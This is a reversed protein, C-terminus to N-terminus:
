GSKRYIPLFIGGREAVSSPLTNKFEKVKYLPFRGLDPPLCSAKKNDPVRVTRQFSIEVKSSQDQNALVVANGQVSLNFQQLGM